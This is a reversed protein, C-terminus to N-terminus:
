RSGVSSAPGHDDVATEDRFSGGIWLACGFLALTILLLGHCLLASTIAPAWDHGALNLM